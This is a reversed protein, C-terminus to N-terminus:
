PTSAAPVPVAQVATASDEFHLRPRLEPTVQLRGDAGIRLVRDVGLRGAMAPWAEGAIFLPKSAVDSLSRFLM